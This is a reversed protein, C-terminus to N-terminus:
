KKKSSASKKRTGSIASGRASVRDRLRSQELAAHRMEPTVHRLVNPGDLNAAPRIMEDGIFRGTVPRERKPNRRRQRRSGSSSMIEELTPVAIDQQRRARHASGVPSVLEVYWFHLEGVATRISHGHAKVRVKWTTFQGSQDGPKRSGFRDPLLIVSRNETKAQWQPKRGSKEYQEFEVVMEDGIQFM